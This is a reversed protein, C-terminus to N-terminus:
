VTVDEVDTVVEVVGVVGVATVVVMTFSGRVVIIGSLIL